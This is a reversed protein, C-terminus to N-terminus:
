DDGCSSDCYQQREELMSVANKTVNENALYMIFIIYVYNTTNTFQKQKNKKYVILKNEKNM